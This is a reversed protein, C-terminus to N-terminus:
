RYYVGNFIDIPRHPSLHTQNGGLDRPGLLGHLSQQLSLVHQIAGQLLYVLQHLDDIDQLLEAYAEFQDVLLLVTSLVLLRQSAGQCRHKAETGLDKTEAEDPQHLSRLAPAVLHHLIEVVLTCELRIEEDHVLRDAPQALDVLERLCRKYALAGILQPSLQRELKRLRLAVYVRGATAQQLHLGGM